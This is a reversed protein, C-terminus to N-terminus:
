VQVPYLNGQPHLGRGSRRCLRRHHGGRWFFEEACYAMVLCLVFALVSNRHTAWGGQRKLMWCFLRNAGVGAVAAFIFFGLIKLLVLGVSEGGGARVRGEGQTGTPLPLGPPGGITGYGTVVGAPVAGRAAARGADAQVIRPAGSDLLSDVRQGAIGVDELAVHHCRADNGLNRGDEAGARATRDIRRRQGVEDDHLLLGRVHEEGARLDDLGDGAFVDRLLLQAAGHHVRGLRAHRLEGDVGLFLADFHDLFQM